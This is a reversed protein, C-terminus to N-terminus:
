KSAFSPVFVIFFHFFPFICFFQPHRKQDLGQPSFCPLCSYLLTKNFLCCCFLLSLVLLVVVVLFVFCHCFFCCCYCCCFLWVCLLCFLRPLCLPSPFFWPLLPPVPLPKLFPLPPLSGPCSWSPASLVSFPCHLSPHSPFFPM